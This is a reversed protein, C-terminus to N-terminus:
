YCAQMVANDLKDRADYDLHADRRADARARRALACADVEPAPARGPGSGRYRTALRRLYAADASRRRARAEIEAATLRRPPAASWSDATQQGAECSGSRYSVAGDPALCKVVTQGTAGAPGAFPFVLAAVLAVAAEKRM